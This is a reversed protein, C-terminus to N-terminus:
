ADRAGAPERGNVALGILEVKEPAPTAPLDLHLRFSNWSGAPASPCASAADVRGVDDTSFTSGGINPVSEPGAAGASNCISAGIAILLVLTYHQLHRAGSQYSTVDPVGKM